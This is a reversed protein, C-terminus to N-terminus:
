RETFATAAATRIPKLLYQLITKEGTVIDAMVTMGPLIRNKPDGGVNNEGLMVKGEYFREGQEGSFTTASIAALTGPVAGYRAFDYSSFKVQVPQGERIHGVYRPPIKLNVVLPTDSPVIEMLAQGPQVVGGITNVTIGKVIGDVPARVEMRAIRSKIKEILENNQMREAVTSELQKHAADIQSISLSALRNEYEKITSNSMAIQNRLSDIKGAIENYRQQTELLKVDSLIGQRNLDRRKQLLSSLIDFNSRSANLEAALIAISQKKQRIQDNIVTREKEAAETMSTFFAQSDTALDPRNVSLGELSPKRGEIFARLREEQLDLVAKRDAARTLDKQLDADDIRLVVQGKKVSDGDRVLIDRVTGGELHQVVQQHGSPIIEGPSRAIENVESFAAWGIFAIVTLSAITMTSRVIGPSASEKLRISQSLYRTQSEQHRNM